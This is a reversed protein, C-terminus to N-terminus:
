AIIMMMMMEDNGHAPFFLLSFHIACLFLKLRKLVERQANKEGQREWINMSM